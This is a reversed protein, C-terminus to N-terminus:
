KFLGVLDAITADASSPGHLTIKDGSAVSVPSGTIAITATTGAAAFTATGISSGNKKLTFITEATAATEATMSCNAQTITYAYPAKHGAVVESGLPTGGCFVPFGKALGLTAIMTDFSTDDLLQRAQSTFDTLAASSAGDFYGIKNAAPTLAALAVLAVSSSQIDIGYVTNSGVSFVLAIKGAAIAYTTGSGTTITAIGSSNNRFIYFGSVNPITVSFGGAGGTINQIPCRAEDTTGNATSLTKNSGLTYAAVGGIAEDFMDIVQENLHTGWSNNNEGPAQKEARKRSSYTSPM